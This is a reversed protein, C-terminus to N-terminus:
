KLRRNTASNRAIADGAWEDILTRWQSAVGTSVYEETSVALAALAASERDLLASVAAADFLRWDRDTSLVSNLAQCFSLTVERRRSRAACGKDRPRGMTLAQYSGKLLRRVNPLYHLESSITSVHALFQEIQKNM